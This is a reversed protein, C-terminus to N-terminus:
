EATQPEYMGDVYELYLGKEKVIEIIQTTIEFKPNVFVVQNKNVVLDFSKETAYDNVLDMIQSFNKEVEANQKEVITTRFESEAQVAKNQLERFRLQNKQNTVDDLILSKNSALIQEMEKKIGEILDSFEKKEKQIMKLSEHYPQFNRLVEEFDLVYTTM